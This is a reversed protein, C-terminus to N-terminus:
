PRPRAVLHDGPQGQRAGARHVGAVRLRPRHDVRRLGPAMPRGADGFLDPMAVTFGDDVVRRAFDAVQPTIGPVETVVVVGPGSGKRYVPHTVGRSTFTDRDFDDLPDVAM